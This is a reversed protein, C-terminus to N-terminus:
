QERSKGQTWRALGYQHQVGLMTRRTPLHNSRELDFLLWSGSTGQSVLRAGATGAILRSLSTM